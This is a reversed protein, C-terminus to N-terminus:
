RTEREERRQKQSLSIWRLMGKAVSPQIKKLVGDYICYFFFARATAFAPGPIGRYNVSYGVLAIFWCQGKSM